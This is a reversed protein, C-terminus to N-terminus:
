EAPFVKELAARVAGPEPEKMVMVIFPQRVFSDSLEEEPDGEVREEMGRRMSLALAATKFFKENEIRIIELSLGEGEVTVADDVIRSIKPPKFGTVQEVPIGHKKLANAVDASTEISGGCGALLATGIVTCLLRKM